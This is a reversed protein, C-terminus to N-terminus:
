TPFWFKSALIYPFSFLFSFFPLFLFFAHQAWDGPRGMNEGAAYGVRLIAGVHPGRGYAVCTDGRSWCRLWWVCSYNKWGECRVTRHARCRPSPTIRNCMGGFLEGSAGIVSKRAGVGEKVWWLGDGLRWRRERENYALWWLRFGRFVLSSAGIGTVGDM